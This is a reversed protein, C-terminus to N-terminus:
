KAKKLWARIGARLESVCAAPVQFLTGRKSKGRIRNALDAADESWWLNNKLSDSPTVATFGITRSNEDYGDVVAVACFGPLKSVTRAYFFVITDGASIPAPGVKKGRILRRKRHERVEKRFVALPWNTQNMQYIWTSM